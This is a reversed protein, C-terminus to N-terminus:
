LPKSADPMALPWSQSEPFSEQLPFVWIELVMQQQRILVMSQSGHRWQIPLARNWITKVTHKRFHYPRQSLQIHLQHAAYDDKQFTGALWTTTTLTRKQVAGLRLNFYTQFPWLVYSVMSLRSCTWFSALGLPARIWSTRGHSNEHQYKTYYIIIYKNM